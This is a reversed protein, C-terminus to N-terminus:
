NLRLVSPTGLPNVVNARVALCSCLPCALPSVFNHHKKSMGVPKKFDTKFKATVSLKRNLMVRLSTLPFTNRFFTFFPRCVKKAASALVSPIM